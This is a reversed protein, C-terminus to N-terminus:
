EEQAQRQKLNLEEVFNEIITELEEDSVEINKSALLVITRRKAMELKEKGLIELDKGTVMEVWQVSAEAYKFIKNMRDTSIKAKLFSDLRAGLYTAFVGLIYPLLETLLEQM